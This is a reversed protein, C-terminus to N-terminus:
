GGTRMRRMAPWPCTRQRRSGNGIPLLARILDAMAAQTKRELRELKKDLDRKLDWNPNRPALNTLNLDKNRAAEAALAEQRISEAQGEVTDTHDKAAPGVIPAPEVFTQLDTTQPQYNRFRLPARGAASSPRLHM